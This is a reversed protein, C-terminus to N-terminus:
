NTNKTQFLNSTLYPTNGLKSRCDIDFYVSAPGIFWTLYLITEILHGGATHWDRVLQLYHMSAKDYCSMSEGIEHKWSTSSDTEGEVSDLYVIHM